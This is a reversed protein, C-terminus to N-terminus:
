ILALLLLVLANALAPADQDDRGKRKLLKRLWYAMDEHKKLDETLIERLQEIARCILTKLTNLTVGVKEAVEERSLRDSIQWLLVQRYRENKIRHIAQEVYHLVEGSIDELWSTDPKELEYLEATLYADELGAEEEVYPIEAAFDTWVVNKYKRIHNYWKRLALTVMYNGLPQDVFREPDKLQELLDVIADQWTDIADDNQCGRKELLEITKQYFQKYFDEWAKRDEQALAAKWVKEADKQRYTLSRHCNKQMYALPGGMKLTKGGALVKEVRRAERFILQLIQMEGRGFEIRLATLLGAWDRSTKEVREAVDPPPIGIRKKPPYLHTCAQSVLADAVSLSIENNRALEKSLPERLTTFLSFYLDSM